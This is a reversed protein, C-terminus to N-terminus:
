DKSLLFIVERAINKAHDGMREISKSILVTNFRTLDSLKECASPDSLQEFHAKNIADIERDKKLISFAKDLDEEVFCTVAEKISQCCLDSMERLKFQQHLKGDSTMISSSRQSISHAEDGIREFDRCAKLAVFILRLDSSLPSRLSIYRMCAYSIERELDDIYDDMGAARHVKALDDELLGDVALRAIENSKEGLLILKNKLDNLEEHFYRKM